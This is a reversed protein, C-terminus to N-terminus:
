PAHSMGQVRRGRTFVIYVVALGVALAYWTIAYQLHNNPLELRTQGGVPLGGPNPTADADLYFPLVRDLHAAAAMAPIDVYFWYNRATDNDPIFWAPKGTPPLRLLGSVTVEGAIEGAARTAPDRKAEPIFGREVLLTAGSATVLPTVVLYGPHGDDSTAGIYLERDNLFRGTARLRHFELDKAAALSEPLDVSPAAVAARRAAILGEKWFLREVQWTGLGLLVVVGAVAFVTPWFNSRDSGM